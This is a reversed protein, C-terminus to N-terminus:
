MKRFLIKELLIGTLYFLVFVVVFLIEYLMPITELSVPIANSPTATMALYTTEPIEPENLEETQPEELAGSIEPVANSATATLGM